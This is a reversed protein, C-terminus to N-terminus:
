ISRALDFFTQFWCAFDSHVLYSHSIKFNGPVLRSLAFNTEPWKRNATSFGLNIYSWKPTLMSLVLSTQTLDLVRELVTERNSQLKSWFSKNGLLKM